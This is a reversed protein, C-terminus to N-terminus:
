PCLENQRIRNEKDVKTVPGNKERIM